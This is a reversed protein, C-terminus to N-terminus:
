PAFRVVIGNPVPINNKKCINKTISKNMAKKCAESRAQLHFVWIKM